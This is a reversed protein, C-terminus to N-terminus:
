VGREDLPPMGYAEQPQQYMPSMGGQESGSPAIPHQNPSLHSQPGHLMVGERLRPAGRGAGQQRDIQAAHAPM